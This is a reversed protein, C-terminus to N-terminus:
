IFIKPSIKGHYQETPSSSQEQPCDYFFKALSEGWSSFSVYHVEIPESDSVSILPFPQNEILVEILSSSNETSSITILLPVPDISSLVDKIIKTKIPNKQKNKRIECFTNEGAGLVIEYVNEETPHPISSLLIHADKSALLIIRMTFTYDSVDAHELDKIKFFHKYGYGKFSSYEQCKSLM